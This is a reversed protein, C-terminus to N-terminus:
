PDAKKFNQGAYDTVSPLFNGDADMPMLVDEHTVLGENLCAAFDDM